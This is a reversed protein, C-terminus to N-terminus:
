GHTLSDCWALVAEALPGHAAGAVTRVDRPAFGHARADALARATQQDCFRVATAAEGRAVGCRLPQIPLTARAAATSFTTDDLGRRQYNTTVPAVGCWREPRRLAQAWVTHGGAEWGTLFARANGGWKRHVDALVAAMGADDFAFDDGAALGQWEARTYSYHEPTRTSAGGCTLVEPAVLIFPRHGRAAVFTELNARFERAADPIVVVVAWTRGSSWGEPLALHYRMVHSSAQEVSIAPAAPVPAGPLSSGALLAGWGLAGAIRAARIRAISHM